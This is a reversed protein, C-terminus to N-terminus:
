KGDDNPDRHTRKLLRVSLRYSSYGLLASYVRMLPRIKLEVTTIIHGAGEPNALAWVTEALTTVLSSASSLLFSMSSASVEYRSETGAAKKREEQEKKLELFDMVSRYGTFYDVVASAFKAPSRKYGIQPDVLIQELTRIPNLQVM